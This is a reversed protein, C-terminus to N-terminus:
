LDSDSEAVSWRVNCCQLRSIHLEVNYNMVVELLMSDQTLMDQLLSGLLGPDLTQQPDKLALTDRM